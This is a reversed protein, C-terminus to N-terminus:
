VDKLKLGEFVVSINKPNLSGHVFKNGQFQHLIKCIKKILIKVNKFDSNECFGRYFERHRYISVTQNRHFENVREFLSLNLILNYKPKFIIWKDQEGEIIKLPHDILELAVESYFDLVKQCFKSEKPYQHVLVDETTSLMQGRFVMKHDWVELLQKRKLGM